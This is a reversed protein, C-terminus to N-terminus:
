SKRARWRQGPMAQVTRRHVLFLYPARHTNAPGPSHLGRRTRGRNVTAMAGTSRHLLHLTPRNNSMSSDREALAPPVTLRRGRCHDYPVLGCRRGAARGRPPAGAPPSRRWRRRTCGGRRRVSRGSRTRASRAAGRRPAAPRRWRRPLRSAAPAARAAGSAPAAARHWCRGRRGVVGPGGIFVSPRSERAAARPAAPPRRAAASCSPAGSPVQDVRHARQNARIRQHHGGEVQVGVDGRRHHM